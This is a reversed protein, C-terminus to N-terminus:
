KKFNLTYAITLDNAVKMAGLMFSPPQINYDTLKIKEQGTCTISNDPKVEGNVQMSIVRSVGAITLTGTAKVSFKNKQLPTISAESLKFTIQPYADAKITKYTRGDMSEHESKLSKANVSFSLSGLSKPVGEDGTLQGFNAECVPNQAVMTWDHVNSSGSIKVTNEKSGSLKYVTQAYVGTSLTITFFLLSVFYKIGNNGSKLIYDTKM